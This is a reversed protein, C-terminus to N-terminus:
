KIWDMRPLLFVTDGNQIRGAQIVTATIGGHSRMANYGGSGLNKEMRSCPPCNGTGYFVASGVQFQVDKLAQLNIGSVVINRRLLNPDISDKGMISAVVGIHESQILTVQRKANPGGSFHDGVLGNEINVEVEDVVLLDERQVPRLGIWEVRGQQPMTELLQKM